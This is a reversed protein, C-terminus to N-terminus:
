YDEKNSKKVAENLMDNTSFVTVISILAWFINIVPIVSLIAPMLFNGDLKISKHWKYNAMLSLILALIVTCLYGKLM